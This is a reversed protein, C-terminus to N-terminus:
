DDHSNPPFDEMGLSRLLRQGIVGSPPQHGREWKQVTRWNVGVREAMEAQTLMLRIRAQRLRAGFTCAEPEVGAEPDAGVFEVIRRRYRLPPQHLGLEWKEITSRDVRLRRALDRQSLGLAERRQRMAGLLTDPAEASEMPLDYGLFERVRARVGPRPQEEGREWKSVSSTSVGLLRAVAQQLLGLDM